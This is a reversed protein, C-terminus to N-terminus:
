PRGFNAQLNTGKPMFNLHGQSSVFQNSQATPKQQQRDNYYQIQYSDYGGEM